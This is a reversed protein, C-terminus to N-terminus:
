SWSSDELFKRLVAVIEDPETGLSLRFAPLQRAVKGAVSFLRARDCHIQSVGSPALALFASKADIPTITTIPGHTLDPLMIAKLDISM